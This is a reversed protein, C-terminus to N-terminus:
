DASILFLCKSPLKISLEKLLTITISEGRPVEGPMPEQDLKCAHTREQAAPRLRNFLQQNGGCHGHWQQVLAGEKSLWDNNFDASSLSPNNM